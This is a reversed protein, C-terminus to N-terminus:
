RQLGLHLQVDQVQVQLYVSALIDAIAGVQLAGGALGDNHQVHLVVRGGEQGEQTTASTSTSIVTIKMQSFPLFGFLIRYHRHFPSQEESSCHAHSCCLYSCKGLSVWCLGGAVTWRQKATQNKCIEHEKRKFSVQGMFASWVM